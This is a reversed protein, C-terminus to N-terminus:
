MVFGSATALLVTPLFSWPIFPIRGFLASAKAAFYQATLSCVLGIIGLLFLIGGMKLIYATDQNRIGQDVIAAMVLPVILEFSAELMKFLPAILSEKKYDKLYDTVKFM